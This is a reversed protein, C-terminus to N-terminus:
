HHHGSPKTSGGEKLFREAEADEELEEPSKPNLRKMERLEAKTINPLHRIFHVLIWNSRDDEASDSGWAPMGSFRVGNRIAYYLEGDSLSQIDPSTMDPVPPYFNSGVDTKGRGDNGHCGACHDAFHARGEALVGASLVMPNERERTGKPIALRRIRRVVAAELASPKARASFFDPLVFFYAVGAAGILVVLLAAPRVLLFFSRREDM